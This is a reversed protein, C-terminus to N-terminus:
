KDKLYSAQHTKVFHDLVKRNYDGSAEVDEQYMGKEIRQRMAEFITVACAVSINLSQVMGMQPILLNGDCYSLSEQSVGVHENGFVFAIKQTLDLDYASQSERDMHTAYVVDYKQKIQEFCKEVDRFFNIHLWKKVGTSTTNLDHLRAEKLHDDTYLVYVEQIGVADCSRLVAGINHPDHVNELVVTMQQRLAATRQLKDWRKESIIM